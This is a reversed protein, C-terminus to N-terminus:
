RLRIRESHPCTPSCCLMGAATSAATPQRFSKLADEMIELVVANRTKELALQEDEVAQQKTELEESGADLRSFDMKQSFVIAWDPCSGGTM